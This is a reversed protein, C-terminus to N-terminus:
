SAKALKSPHLKYAMSRSIGHDKTIEGILKGRRWDETVAEPAFAPKAKYHVRLSALVDLQVTCLADALQLAQHAPLDRAADRIRTAFADRLPGLMDEAKVDDAM